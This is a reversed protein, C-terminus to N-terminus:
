MRGFCLSEARVKSTLTKVLNTLAKSLWLDSTTSIRSKVTLVRQNVVVATGGSRCAWVAFTGMDAEVPLAIPVASKWASLRLHAEYREFDPPALSKSNEAFV